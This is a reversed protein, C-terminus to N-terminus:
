TDPNIKKKEQQICDFAQQFNITFIFAFNLKLAIQNQLKQYLFALFSALQEDLM